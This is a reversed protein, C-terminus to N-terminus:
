WSKCSAGGKEYWCRQGNERITINGDGAQMKGAVPEATLTYTQSPAAGVTLSLDYKGDSTQESTRGLGGTTPNGNYVDPVSDTYANFNLYIKEQVAALQLLETQAAARSGRIVYNNYSPMAITALIGIIAVVIMLEILSFGSSYNQKM